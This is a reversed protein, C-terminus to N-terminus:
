PLDGGTKISKILYKLKFKERPSETEFAEHAEYLLEFTAYFDEAHELNQIM